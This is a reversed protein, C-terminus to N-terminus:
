KLFATLMQRVGIIKDTDLNNLTAVLSLFEDDGRMRIVIDTLIDNKKEMESRDEILDSKLIGFLNALMEIKDIRPYKVGNIWTNLTSPSVGISEAIERQTKGSREVYYFLNQSMVKKNGINSM